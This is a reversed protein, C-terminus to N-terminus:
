YRLLLMADDRRLSVAHVEPPRSITFLHFAHDIHSLGIYEGVTRSATVMMMLMFANFLTTTHFTSISSQSYSQSVAGVECNEAATQPGWLPPSGQGGTSCGMKHLFFTRISHHAQLLELLSAAVKRLEGGLPHYLCGCAETCFYQARSKLHKMM